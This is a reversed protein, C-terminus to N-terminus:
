LLMTVVQLFIEQLLRHMRALMRSARVRMTGQSKHYLEALQGYTLNEKYIHRYLLMDTRSMKKELVAMVEDLDYDIEGAHNIIAEAVPDELEPALPHDISYATHRTLVNQKRMLSKVKNHTTIILWGSPNPHAVLKSSKRLAEEFVDQVVDDIYDDVQIRSRYRNLEFIATRLVADHNHEFLNGLWAKVFPDPTACRNSTQNVSEQDAAM